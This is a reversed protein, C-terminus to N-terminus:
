RSRSRTAVWSFKAFLDLTLFDFFTHQHQLAFNARDWCSKALLFSWSSIAARGLTKAQDSYIRKLAPSKYGASFYKSMAIGSALLALPFIIKGFIRIAWRDLRSATKDNPFKTPCKLKDLWRREDIPLKGSYGPPFVSSEILSSRLLIAKGICKKLHQPSIISTTSM